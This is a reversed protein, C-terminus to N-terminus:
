KWEPRDTFCRERLPNPSEASRPAEIRGFRHYLNTAKNCSDNQDDPFGSTIARPERPLSPDGPPPTVHSPAASGSRPLRPRRLGPSGCM